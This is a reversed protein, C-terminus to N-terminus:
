KGDLNFYDSYLITHDVGRQHDVPLGKSGRHRPLGFMSSGHGMLLVVHEADDGDFYSSTDM